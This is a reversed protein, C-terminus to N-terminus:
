KTVPVLALPQELVTLLVIVTFAIGFTFMAAEALAIHTPPETVSVALPAELKKHLLLAVEELITTLGPEVVM